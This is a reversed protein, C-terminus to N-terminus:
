AARRPMLEPPVESLIRLVALGDLPEDLHIEETSPLGLRVNWKRNGKERVLHALHVTDGFVHDLVEHPVSCALRREPPGEGQPDFRVPGGLRSAELAWIRPGHDMWERTIVTMATLARRYAQHIEALRDHDVIWECGPSLLLRVAALIRAQATRGDFDNCHVSISFRPVQGYAYGRELLWQPDDVPAGGFRREVASLRDRLTGDEVIRAIGSMDVAVPRSM